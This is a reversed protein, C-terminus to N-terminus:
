SQVEEEIVKDLKYDENSRQPIMKLAKKWISDIVLPTFKGLSDLESKLKDLEEISITEHKAQIIMIDIKRKIRNYAAGADKHRTAHEDFRMFTQISSLAGAFIILIGTLTNILTLPLRVLSSFDILVSSGAIITLLIVLTGLVQYKARYWNATFHHASSARKANILWHLLVGIQDNSEM